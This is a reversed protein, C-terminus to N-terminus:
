LTDSQELRSAIAQQIVQHQRQVEAVRQQVQFLLDNDLHAQCACSTRPDPATDGRPLTPPSARVVAAARRAAWDDPAPVRPPRGRRLM